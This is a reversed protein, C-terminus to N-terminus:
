GQDEPVAVAVPALASRDLATNMSGIQNPRRTEVESRTAPALQSPGPHYEHIVRTTLQHDLGGDIQVREKRGWRDPWRRELMTMAAAWNRDMSSTVMQVCHAEAQAEAEKVAVSFAHYVSNPSAEGKRCWVRVTDYSIGASRCATVLYNGARISALIANARDQNLKTPRGM